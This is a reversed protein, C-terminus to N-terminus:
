LGCPHTRSHLNSCAHQLRVQLEGKALIELCIAEENTTGFAEALDEKSAFVGKAVNAFIATTQLM